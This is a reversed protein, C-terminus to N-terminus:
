VNEHQAFVGSETSFNVTLIMFQRKFWCKHVSHRCPRLRALAINLFYFKPLNLLLFMFYKITMLRFTGVVLYVCSRFEHTRIVECWGLRLLTRADHRLNWKVTNLTSTNHLQKLVCLIKGGKEVHYTSKLWQKILSFTRLLQSFYRWKLWEHRSLFSNPM